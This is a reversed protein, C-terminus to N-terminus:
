RGSERGLPRLVASENERLARSNPRGEPRFFISFVPLSATSEWPRGTERPAGEHAGARFGLGSRSTRRLARLLRSARERPQGAIRRKACARPLACDPASRDRQGLAEYYIQRERGHEDDELGASATKGLDPQDAYRGVVAFVAPRLDPPLRQSGPPFKDFRSRCSAIIDSDNLLASGASSRPASCPLRCRNARKRSGASAISLRGFLAARMNNFVRGSRTAPSCGTSCLSPTSSRTSFTRASGQRDAKRALELYHALPQQPRGRGAGLCRDAPEASRSGVAASSRSCSSGPLTTTPSAIIAPM